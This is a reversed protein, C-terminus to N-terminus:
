PLATLGFFVIFCSFVSFVCFSRACMQETADPPKARIKPALGRICFARDIGVTYPFDSLLSRKLFFKRSFSRSSV